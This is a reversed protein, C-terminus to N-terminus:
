VKKFYVTINRHTNPDIATRSELSGKQELVSLRYGAQKRTIGTEKAYQAITIEGPKMNAAFLRKQEEAIYDLLEVVAKDEIASM